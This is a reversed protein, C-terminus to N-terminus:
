LVSESKVIDDYLNLAKIYDKSNLIIEINNSKFDIREENPMSSLDSNQAKQFNKMRNKYDILFDDFSIFGEVKENLNIQPSHETYNGINILVTKEDKVFQDFNIIKLQKIHKLVFEYYHIYQDIIEKSTSSKKLFINRKAFLYSIIADKPHRIIIISKISRELAMKLVTTSHLHHSVNCHLSPYVRYILGFTYTNGSRPYGDFYMPDNKEPLRLSKNKEKFIFLVM